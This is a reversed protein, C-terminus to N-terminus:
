AVAFGVGHSASRFTVTRAAYKGVVAPALPSIQAVTSDVTKFLINRNRCGHVEGENEDAWLLEKVESIWHLAAPGASNRTRM